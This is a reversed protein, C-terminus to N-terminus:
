THIYSYLIAMDNAFIAMTWGFQHKRILNRQEIIRKIRVQLMKEYTRYSPCFRFLDLHNLNLQINEPKPTDVVKSYKSSRSGFRNYMLRDLHLM